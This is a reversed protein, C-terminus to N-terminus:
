PAAGLAEVAGPLAQDGDYLVGSIDILLGKAM